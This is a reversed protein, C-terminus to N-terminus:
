GPSLVGVFVRTMEGLILNLVQARLVGERHAGRLSHGRGPRLHAGRHHLPRPRRRRPLLGDGVRLLPAPPLQLLRCRVLPLYHIERSFITKIPLM